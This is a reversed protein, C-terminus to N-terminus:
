NISSNTIKINDLYFEAPRAAISSFEIQTTRNWASAKTKLTEFLHKGGNPLTVEMTWKGNAHKGQTATIEFHIWQQTPLPLLNRGNVILSNNKIKLKPGTQYKIADRWLHEIEANLEFMLDFSVTSLGETFYTQYYLKPNETFQLGLADTIKLSNKGGAACFDTVEVSDGTKEVDAKANTPITGVQVSEFDEMIALSTGAPPEPAFEVPAFNIDNALSVWQSNGYVGAKTYDFPKFGLTIAPSNPKLNFDFHEADVFCPDTEMSDTERGFKQIQALNLSDDFEINRGSTNWYINKSSLVNEDNWSNWNDGYYLDGNQWYIINNEFWIRGQIARNWIGAPVRQLQGDMAFAFINNRVILDSGYHLSYSGTKTNYILNNEMLMASSAQDTYIGWGGRGYMDYSYIDHIMNNCLTTGPSEGLTYIGGMDSLVGQGIHHIHNYEIKNREAHSKGYDWKWGVSIGTYRMDSIDNHTIKNDGSHGIKIGVAGMHIHGGSRIINNDAEIHSTIPLSLDDGGICLGSAGFDHIYCKKISCDSCGYKFWIGTTGIHAIECNEFTIAQAYDAMVAADIISAAAQTDKQGEPPLIYQCYQFSINKFNIHEVFKQKQVNGKLEIFRNIVPAVVTASNMDENEFPKYYLIGNRSLFWEGYEDLAEIFNELHYRQYPAEFFRRGAPGTLTILDNNEDVSDIRNRSITWSHYFVATVDNLQKPPMKGILVADAHEAAFSTKNASDASPRTIYHYFKNPVRARVARKGNIFLQEFYWKGENVEPIYVQWISNDNKKFGTIVKGGSLIPKANSQAEYSIPNEKTGSDNEDFVITENLNYIGDALLIHIPSNFQADVKLKRVCDRAQVITAFPKEYSGNCDADANGSVYINIDGYVAATYSFILAFLFVTHKIFLKTM